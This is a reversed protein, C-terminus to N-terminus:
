ENKLERLMAFPSTRDDDGAVDPPTVVDLLSSNPNIAVLPLALLLEDEVVDAPNLRGDAPVLLPECDPPLGAEDSEQRILGLRTSVTVPLAFPELTRQCLMTLSVEARVDVYSVRLSDRGFDLAFRVTGGADALAECLRRLSAVPLSGAFSRRASVMRWVDVSEPMTGSM